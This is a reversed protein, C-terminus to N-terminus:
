VRRSWRRHDPRAQALHADGGSTRTKPKTEGDAVAAGFQVNQM